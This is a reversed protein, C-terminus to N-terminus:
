NPHSKCACLRPVASPEAFLKPDEVLSEASRALMVGAIKRRREIEDEAKRLRDKAHPLCVADGDMVTFAPRPLDPAESAMDGICDICGLQWTM